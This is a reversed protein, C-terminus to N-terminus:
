FKLENMESENNKFDIASYQTGTTDVDEIVPFKHTDPSGAGTPTGVPLKQIQSDPFRKALEVDEVTKTTSPESSCFTFASYALCLLLVVCLAAFTAQFETKYTKESNSTLSSLDTSSTTTLLDTSSTTTAVPAVPLNFECVGSRCTGTSVILCESVGSAATCDMGECVDGCPGRTCQMEDVHGDDYPCPIGSSTQRDATVSYTRTKTGYGCSADCEPYESWSGQCVDVGSISDSCLGNICEQGFAACEADTSCVTGLSLDNVCCRYGSIFSSDGPECCSSLADTLCAEYLADDNRYIQCCTDQRPCTTPVFSASSSSIPSVYDFSELERRSLGSLDDWALNRRRSSCKGGHCCLGSKASYDNSKVGGPGFYQIGQARVNWNEFMMKIEPFETFVLHYKVNDMKGYAENVSTFSCQSTVCTKAAFHQLYQFVKVGNIYVRSDMIVPPSGTSHKMEILITKGNKTGQFYKAWVNQQYGCTGCDAYMMLGAHHEYFPIVHPDGWTICISRKPNCPIYCREEKTEPGPCQAATGGVCQRTAIKKGEGCTGTLPVCTGFPGWPNWAPKCCEDATCSTSACVKGSPNNILTRGAPINSCTHATNACTPRQCCTSADTSVCPFGACQGSPDLVKNQASCTAAQFQSCSQRCCDSAQCTLGVCTIMAPNPKASGSPCSGFGM